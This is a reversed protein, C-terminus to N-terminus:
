EGEKTYVNLRLKIEPYEPVGVNGGTSAVIVTKGSKSKGYRKKLNVKVTLVDGEVAMEINQM